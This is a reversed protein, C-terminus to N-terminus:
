KVMSRFTRHHVMLMYTIPVIDWLVVAVAHIIGDVFLADDNNNFVEIIIYVTWAFYGILFLIFQRIISVREENLEGEDIKNLHRILYAIVVIYLITVVTYWVTDLIKNYLM